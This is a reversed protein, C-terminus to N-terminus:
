EQTQSLSTWFKNSNSQLKRLFLMDVVRKLFYYGTTKAYDNESENEVVPVDIIREELIRDELETV